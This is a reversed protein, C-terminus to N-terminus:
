DAAMQNHLRERFKDFLFYGLPKTFQDSCNEAGAVSQVDIDKVEHLDRVFHFRTEVHRSKERFTPDKAISCAAENDCYIQIPKVDSMKANRQLKLLYMAEQAAGALGIYEAEMISLCTRAFLKSRWSIAADNMIAAWGFQSKRSIPDRAYSADSYMFVQNRDALKPNRSYTIGLEATYKLYGILRSMARIHREDPCTAFRCLTSVAYAIDPRTWIALFLCHGAAKQMLKVHEPKPEPCATLEEKEAMPTKYTKCNQMGLEELMKQIHQTQSMTVDGDENRSFHIGCFWDLLDLDHCKFEGALQQHLQKIAEEDSGTLIMDDTYLLAYVEGKATKKHFFCDDDAISSM